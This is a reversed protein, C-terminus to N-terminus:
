EGKERKSNIFENYKETIDNVYTKNFRRRPKDNVLNQGHMFAAYEQMFLQNKELFEFDDELNLFGNVIKAKLKGFNGLFMQSGDYLSAMFYTGYQMGLRKEIAVVDVGLKEVLFEELDQKKVMCAWDIKSM